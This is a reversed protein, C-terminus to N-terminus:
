GRFLRWIKKISGAILDVVYLEAGVDTDTNALHLSLLARASNLPM